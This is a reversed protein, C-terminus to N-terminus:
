EFSTSFVMGDIESYKKEYSTGEVTETKGSESAAKQM